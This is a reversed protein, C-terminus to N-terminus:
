KVIKKLFETFVDAMRMMGLDTPHCGDVTGEGDTGLMGKNPLYYLNIMGEKLLKEYIAHAAKGKETPSIDNVSSDEALVIPTNPKKARLKRIFPEFRESIMQQNMNWLCDLVYVAPDLEAILDVMVLEMKGNGSFGLNIVPADLKRSVINTFATGPRSACGGQTISTGYFVITKKQRKKDAPITFLRKDKSVGVKLMKIGNYLPLYLIYEDAGNLTFRVLNTDAKPRGNHLFRWGEITKAYLDVGSVGTAAMHPMALDKNILAWKVKITDADTSFRLNMGASHHSLNWVHKTVKGEAKAPLRDYYSKTDQWGKGEITLLEGDYWVTKGDADAVGQHPKIEAAYSLAAIFLLMLFLSKFQFTKIM